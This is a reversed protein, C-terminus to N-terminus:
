TAYQRQHTAVRSVFTTGIYRRQVVQPRQRMRESKSEAQRLLSTLASRGGILRWLLMHLGERFVSNAPYRRLLPPMAYPSTQLVVPGIHGPLTSPESSRMSATRQTRKTARISQVSPLRDSGPLQASGALASHPANLVSMVWGVTSAWLLWELRKEQHFLRAQELDLFSKLDRFFEEIQMRRCYLAIIDDDLCLDTALFWTTQTLTQGTPRGKYDRELKPKRLSERVVVM